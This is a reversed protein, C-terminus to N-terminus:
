TLARIRKKLNDTLWDWLGLPLAQWWLSRHKVERLQAALGIGGHLSFRILQRHKARLEGRPAYLDHLTVDELYCLRLGLPNRMRYRSRNACIGDPAHRNIQLRDNTFRIKYRHAMRRLILTPRIHREGAIIPYPYQRMVDTRLAERREGNMKCRAHMALYDADIVPEPYEDGSVSGDENLCLGGVGAFAAKDSDPIAAWHRALKELADPLLSDDSDLTMFMEGRAMAVAANHAAHKGQNTQWVYQIPFPNRAQWEGVLAKTGDTSGDDVIVVEFDRYTQREASALSEGLTHARNYTPIFLTFLYAASSAQRNSPEVDNAVPTM